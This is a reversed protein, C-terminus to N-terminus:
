RQAETDLLAQRVKAVTRTDDPATRCCGGIIRAGADYWRQVLSAHSGLSQATECPYWRKNTPDYHEGANPYIVIPLTTAAALRKVMGEVHQMGTCNLGIAKIQPHQSLWAACEEIPTGDAIHADDRVSFAIWATAEPFEEELLHTLAQAEALMPITECALIDVGEELLAAIRPRHFDKLTREDHIYNGVYESGDALWAGYPGVSGAVLMPLTHDPHAALYGQRAQNLLTASEAMLQRAREADIGAQAYGALSAQYSASIGIDAGADFYDRHVQAILAPQEALVRASWLADNLDCGRNELESALAGDLVAFPVRALLDDLPHTM